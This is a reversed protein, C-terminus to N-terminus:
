NDPDGRPQPQQGNGGNLHELLIMRIYSSVTLYAAKARAELQKHEEKTLLTMTPKDRAM